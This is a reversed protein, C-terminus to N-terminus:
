GRICDLRTMADIEWLSLERRHLRAWSELEAFNLPYAFLSLWHWLYVLEPPAVPIDALEDPMVGTQKWVSELVKRKSQTGGEM